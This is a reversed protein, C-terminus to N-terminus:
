IKALEFHMGDRRTFHGGWYFGLDNATQVLERVSGRKGVLAPQTGLYNWQVNIDFATGFAHNSLTTRSGRVFRPVWSGGWTLIYQTLGEEEWKRFLAEISSRAAKHVFIKGSGPAGRVGKLQPIVIQKINESQWSNTITIAEPDRSNGSPRYLIVGFKKQRASMGALPKFDPKPPWEAGLMHDECDTVGQFGRLMAAAYTENGVVGDVDLRLHEQFDKTAQETKEGFQGDVEGFYLGQGRLFYQWKTVPSGTDGERLTRM